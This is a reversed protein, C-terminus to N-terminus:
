SMCIVISPETVCMCTHMYVHMYASVNSEALFSEIRGEVFSAMQMSQVLVRYGQVGNATKLGSVVIYGVIISIM